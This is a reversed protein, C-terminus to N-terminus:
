ALLTFLHSQILDELKADSYPAEGFVRYLLVPSHM